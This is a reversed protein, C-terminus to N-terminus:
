RNALDKPVSVCVFLFGTVKTYSLKSIAKKNNKFIFNKIPSRADFENLLIMLNDISCSLFKIIKFITLLAVERCNM